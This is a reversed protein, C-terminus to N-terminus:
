LDLWARVVIALSFAGVLVAAAAQILDSTSVEAFPMDTIGDPWVWYSIVIGMILLVTVVPRSMRRGSDGSLYKRKRENM